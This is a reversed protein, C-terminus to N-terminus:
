RVESEYVRIGRDHRANHVDGRGPAGCVPCPSEARDLLERLHANEKELAVIRKKLFATDAM